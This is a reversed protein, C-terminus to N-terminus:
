ANFQASPLLQRPTKGDANKPEDLKSGTHEVLWDALDRRNEYCALHIPLNGESDAIDFPAEANQLMQLLEPTCASNCVARHVPNSGTKDKKWSALDNQIFLDIVQVKCRSVAYFFANRGERTALQPNAGAQLLRDAIHAYGASAATILPTWGGEDATDVDDGNAIHENVAALDNNMVAWHLPTREDDSM